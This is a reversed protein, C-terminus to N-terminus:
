EDELKLEKEMRWQLAGDEMFQEGQVQYEAQLGFRHDVLHRSSFSTAM